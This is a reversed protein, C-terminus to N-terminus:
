VDWGSPGGPAPEYRCAQGTRISAHLHAGARPAARSIRDLASRLTRTANVRAREAEPSVFRSRGGLGTARRLEDVLARRERELSRARAADGSRDAADLESTLTQLRNRYQTRAPTDIVPGASTASLGSGGAVLDLAPIERGPSALLVRLYHLGRSDRVRIHEGAAELLWDEGDRLLRWREPPLPLLAPPVTMGLREATKQAQTRLNAAAERDGPRARSALADALAARARALTPLAGIRECMAAAEAQLGAAEDWRGADAALLGLYYAAPGFVAAAGGQVVLLGRYPALVDYLRAAADHDHAAVAVQALGCVSGLWRPGSAALVQPLVRQMEATAERVQGFAALVMAATAEYLHGPRGRAFRILSEATSVGQEPTGTDLMIMGHITAVLAETDALGAARGATEVQDALDRAQDYRGRLSALMAHRATVMVGARADGALQAARAFVALTAEAETVKGLEMLAMFRWFLGHRERDVDGAARALEIIESAAALRDVSAAPDWLAHLRADLVEALVGPEGGARALALAEDVLERCRPGSGPEALLEAALRALVRSRLMPPLEREVATELLRVLPADGALFEAQSPAHLALRAVPDMGADAGADPVAAALCLAAGPLGSAALWLARRVDPHREGTLTGLDAESLPGLHLMPVAEVPAGCTVVVVTSSGALRSALVAFVEVADPGARDLDDVVILRPASSVLGRVAEGLDLPGTPELLRQADEPAGGADRLLHAWPLRGAAASGVAIRLVEFGRQTAGTAVSDALASKGAGPAGWVVLAGGVGRAARELVGNLVAVERDRGVLKV